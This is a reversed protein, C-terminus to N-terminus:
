ERLNCGRERASFRLNAEAAEINELLQALVIGRRVITSYAPQCNGTRFARCDSIRQQVKLKLETIEKIAPEMSECSGFGRSPPRFNLGQTGCAREYQDLQGPYCGNDGGAEAQQSYVKEFILFNLLLVLSLAKVITMNEGKNNMKMLEVQRLNLTSRAVPRFVQCFCSSFPEIHFM